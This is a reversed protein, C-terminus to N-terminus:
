EFARAFVTLGLVMAAFSLFVFWYVGRWTRFLPVGPSDGDSSDPPTPASM